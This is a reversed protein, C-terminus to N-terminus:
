QYFLNVSLQKLSNGGIRSCAIVTWERGSDMSQTSPTRRLSGGNMSNSLAAVSHVPSMSGSGKGNPRQWYFLTVTFEKSKLNSAGYRALGISAIFFFFINLFYGPYNLYCVFNNPLRFFTVFSLDQKSTQSRCSSSPLVVLKLPIVDVNM